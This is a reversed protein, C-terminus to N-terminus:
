RTDTICFFTIKKNLDTDWLFHLTVWGGGLAWSPARQGLGKEHQLQSPAFPVANGWQLYPVCFSVLTTSPCDQLFNTVLYCRWSPRHPHTEESESVSPPQASLIPSRLGELAPGTGGDRASGPVAASSLASQKGGWIIGPSNSLRQWM